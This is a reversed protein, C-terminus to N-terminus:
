RSRPPAACWAQSMKAPPACLGGPRSARVAAGAVGGLAPHSSDELIKPHLAARLAALTGLFAAGVAATSAGRTM